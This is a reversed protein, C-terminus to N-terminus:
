TPALAELARLIDGPDNGPTTIALAVEEVGARELGALRDRCEEAPGIITVLDVMKDTVAAIAEEKRRELYLDQIRAAEEEFGYRRFLQNYYNKQRSGM